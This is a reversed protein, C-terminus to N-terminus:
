SRPFPELRVQDDVSRVGPITEAAVRLARREEDTCAVCMLHVVGDQVVVGFRWPRVWPQASVRAMLQDYIDRDSRSAPEPEDGARALIKLLDARSVIGVLRGNRVVPLRKIRHEELRSVIEEVPTDEDITVVERTMVDEVRRGHTKVYEAALADGQAFLESLWSRRRETKLEARRLLDGESVIGLLRGDGDVVPVASIHHQLLIKAAAGVQATPGVSAVPSTMIDAAKM